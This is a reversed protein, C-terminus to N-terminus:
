RRVWVGALSDAYARRWAASDDLWQALPTHVDFLVYDIRDADLVAQPDRLLLVTEAYRRIPPDGYIDSRGDIYVLESPRRLGLYGGWSYQNFPRGGPDNAIIWDVAEVPMNQDILEIQAVPGARGFAVAAGALGIVVVLLLHLGAAAAPPRRQMRQLVPSIARGISSRTLTPDIYAAVIGACIPGAVLLFRAASIAMVSLGILVLADAMRLRRWAVLLTPVVGLLLFGALLQGPLTAISPPSWEALFERHAPISATALPYGYLDIGNPNISLVAAAALMAVVVRAISPWAMPLPEVQRQLLRDAAEGVIFAGGILFLLVWGAHLNAWGLAIIPLGVLPKWGGERRYRWLLYLTLATLPLDIVQVRVGLTPGAVTLGVALWVIRGLWGARPDTYRIAKWLIGLALAVLLAFTVSLLFWGTVGLRDFLAMFVNTLWDQSTWPLGHGVISWTDASPVKGASLITEGARIHWWVDGDILPIASRPIAVLAFFAAIAVASMPIRRLDM